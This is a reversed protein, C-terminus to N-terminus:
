RGIRGKRRRPHLQTREFEVVRRGDCLGAVVRRNGSERHHSVIQTLLLRSAPDCVSELPPWAPDCSECDRKRGVVDADTLHTDLEVLRKSSGLGEIPKRRVHPASADCGFRELEDSRPSKLAVIDYANLEDRM